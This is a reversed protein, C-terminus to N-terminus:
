RIEGRELLVGDKYLEIEGRVFGGPIAVCNIYNEYDKGKLNNGTLNNFIIRASYGDSWILKKGNQESLYVAYGKDELHNYLKKQEENLLNYIEETEM